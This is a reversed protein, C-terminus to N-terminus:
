IMSDQNLPLLLKVKPVWPEPTMSGETTKVATEMNGTVASDMNGTVANDM